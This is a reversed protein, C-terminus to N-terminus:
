LYSDDPGILQVPGHGAYITKVKFSRIKAWSAEVQERSEDTAAMPSQWDGTFASGADLVLSISDQSHGPTEIIEGDIRISKLYKRSENAKLNINGVLSIEKHNAPKMFQSLKPIFPLQIDIVILQVGQNKMGQALGAHDPHYHTILLYNIKQFIIGKRQCM